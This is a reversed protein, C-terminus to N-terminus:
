SATELEEVRARLDEIEERQKAIIENHHVTLKEYNVSAPVMGDVEHEALYDEDGEVVSAPEWNVLHGLGDRKAVREATYGLGLKGNMQYEVPELDLVREPDFNAPRIDEKYRESSSSKVIQNNADFVATTGSDSGASPLRVSGEGGVHQWVNGTTGSGDVDWARLAFNDGTAYYRLRYRWTGSDSFLINFADNASGSSTQNLHLVTGEGGTSRFEVVDGGGGSGINDVNPTSPSSTGIGVRGISTVALNVNQTGGNPTYFRLDGSGDGTSQYQIRAIGDNSHTTGGDNLIGLEVEASNRSAGIQKGVFIKSNLDSTGQFSALYGSTYNRLQFIPSHNQTSNNVTLLGSPNGTGIGVSGSEDIRMRFSPSTSGSPTTEFDIMSAHSTGTWAEAARLKIRAGEGFSSGDHCQGDINLAIDGSNVASPASRTGRAKGGLLQPGFSSTDRFVEQRWAGSGGSQTTYIQTGENGDAEIHINANPSSTGVGINANTDIAMAETADMIFRAYGAQAGSSEQSVFQIEFDTDASVVSTTTDSDHKARLVLRPSNKTGNDSTVDSPQITVQGGDAVVDVTTSPTGTGVGFRKNTDDWHLDANAQQLDGDADAFPISGSSFNTLRATTVRVRGSDDRQVITNATDSEIGKERRAYGQTM